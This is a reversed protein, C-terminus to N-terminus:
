SNLLPDDGVLGWKTIVLVGDKVFKFVVPDTKILKKRKLSFLGHSGDFSLEKSNFHNKPAAIFLGSKDVVDVHCQNADLSITKEPTYMGDLISKVDWSTFSKEYDHEYMIPNEWGKVEKTTVKNTPYTDSSSKLGWHIQHLVRPKDGFSLEPDNAEIEELNETPVTKTYHRVQAYVLGYKKCIRNLEDITLFKCKPYTSNYYKIRKAREMEAAIIDEQTKNREKIEQMKSVIETNTFGLKYLRRAKDLIEEETTVKHGEAENMINLAEELLREPATDFENHMEAILEEETQKTKFM